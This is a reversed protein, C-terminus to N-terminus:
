VRERCSARGIKIIEEFGKKISECYNKIQEPRISADDTKLEVLYVKNSKTFVCYDTKISENTDRDRNITGIRVPLEPIIKDVDESFCEKFIKKLYVAFFIDARRELQYAPLNRWDNLLSFVENIM